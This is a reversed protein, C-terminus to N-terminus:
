LLKCNMEDKHENVWDIYLNVRDDNLEFGEIKITKGAQVCSEAYFTGCDFLMYNLDGDVRYCNFSCDLSQWVFDYKEELDLNNFEILMM